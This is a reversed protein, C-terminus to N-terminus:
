RCWYNESYRREIIQILESNPLDSSADYGTLSSYNTIVTFNDVSVVEHGALDIFTFLKKPTAENDAFYQYSVDSTRGTEHEHKHKFVLSRAKGRGDDLLGPNCLVGITSSKSADVSGIVAVTFEEYASADIPEFRKRKAETVTIYKTDEIPDEVTVSPTKSDM